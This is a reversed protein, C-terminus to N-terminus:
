ISAIKKKPLIFSHDINMIQWFTIYEYDAFVNHLLHIWNSIQCWTKVCIQNIMITFCLFLTVFLIAIHSTLVWIWQHMNGVWIGWM